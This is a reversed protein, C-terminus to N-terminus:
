VFRTVDLLVLEEAGDSPVDRIGVIARGDPSWTPSRIETPALQLLRGETDLLWTGSRGEALSGSFVLWRGDPSWVLQSPSFVDEQVLELSWGQADLLYLNWPASLRADGSLGVSQPSGAFAVYAGDPSWAPLDARGSSTCDEGHSLFYQDVRWSREGEGVTVPLSRLGLGDVLAISSCLVNGASVIAQDMDPSVTLMPPAFSKMYGLTKGTVLLEVSRFDLSLAVLSYSTPIRSKQTDHDCVKVLGVRGDLLSIPNVYRTRECKADTPLVVPQLARGDPRMRWIEVSATVDTPNPLVAMAVWEPSAWAVGTFESLNHTPIPTMRLGAAGGDASDSDKPACAALICITLVIGRRLRESSM